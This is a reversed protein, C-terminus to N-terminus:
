RGTFPREARGRGGQQLGLLQPISLSALEVREGAAPVAFPRYGDGSWAVWVLGPDDLPGAFTCLLEDPRGHAGVAKIEVVLDGLDHRTGAVFPRSPDFLVPDIPSSLFGEAARLGLARDGARWVEVRSMTAGLTRVRDPPPRGLEHRLLPIWSTFFFDPGNVFVLTRGRVEGARDISLAAREYSRGFLAPAYSRLPLMVPALVLHTLAFSALLARVPRREFFGDRPGQASRAAAGLLEAVLGFAGVGVPLLLRDNAFTGCSPLASLVMGAGWFRATPSRALWPRLIAVTVAAGSVAVAVFAVAAAPPLALLLDSPIPTMQGQLLAPLREAVAAAFRVPDRAPDVYIGSGRAGHGLAAYALRWALCVFASPALALLRPLRPGRAVFAEYAAIYAVMGVAMESSLLGAALAFPGLVAALRSGDRRWRVHGLLAAAGFACAMVSNRNAVWAVAFGHADDLAFMLAALGAVWPPELLRRYLAGVLLSFAAFWLLSQVHGPVPTGPALRHDLWLSLSAVPRLFTAQLDPAAYWPLGGDERALAKFWPDPLVFSYLDWPARALGPFRTGATVMVHHLHDDLVRGIALAPSLLVLAAATAWAPASPRWLWSRFGPPVRM